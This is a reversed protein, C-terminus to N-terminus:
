ALIEELLRALEDVHPPQFMSYHNGPAVRVHLEAVLERWGAEPTLATGAPAESACVLAVRGAVEHPDYRHYARLNATFVAVRRALEGEQLQPPVIAHLQGLELVKRLAAREDLGRLDEDGLALGLDRAFQGLAFRADIEASTHFTAPVFTDLLITSRVRQGAAALRRALEIAVVGGFSWGAVDYGAPAPQELLQRAYADAMAEVTEIPLEGEAIGQSQLGICPRDQALRAVLPQYCFATGGIPHVLVLTPRSGGSRLPLLRSAPPPGGSDIERALAEVTPSRFLTTLPLSVHLRAKIAAFLQVAMLSHGGLAFFDDRAGVLAVGLLESFLRAVELESRTRPATYARDQDAGAAPLQALAKRDVKGNPTLPLRELSVIASPVMYEPLRQKLRARLEAPSAAGPGAVVYAFIRKGGVDDRVIAAVERVEGEQALVAEIEGLEIRYGRVKVQQDIRGLCEITGDPLWRGLDGTRYMRGAGFPNPIFKEATLQPRGLYGGGVCTGAICIEGPVGIPTPQMQEDCIYIQTNDVPRGIDPPRPSATASPAVTSSITIVTCETPGYHNVLAFPATMPPRRSLRDGGTHLARLKCDRPWEMDLMLEAVPTPVFTAAIANAVLWDKLAVPDSRLAEEVLCLTGGRALTSWTEWVCADFSLGAGQAWRDGPALTFTHAHWAVLNALSRHSILSGKPKGTSGSTYIVYALDDLALPGAEPPGAPLERLRSAERDLCVVHADSAIPRALETTTVLIKVGADSLMYGIREAGLDPAIPLYAAGAKWAALWAVIVEPTRPLHVGVISGREAGLERLRRALQNARADLERYSIAVGGHELAIARPTHTAVAAVLQDVRDGPFERSTENWGRVVQDREADGLLALGSIRASPATAIAGLLTLFHGVMRDITVADFLDTCYEIAGRLGGGDEELVMTLDFKATGTDPVISRQEIGPIPVPRPANQLAFMVQFLPTYSLSREPNLEDVLKEFPVDQHAYAGLAVERVRALLERFTPDGSLDTRMVLTNVFFGILQELEGRNRNAIPSGVFVDHQGSYRHLLLKFAALYLMFSTASEERCLVALRAVLEPPIEFFRLAGRLSQKPPRAHDTPLELLTPMGALQRKWYALQQDLVDGALWARQWAAFDAYQITLERLQGGAYLTNIEDMLVAMSWGDSVIHHMVLVLWHVDPAVRLMRARVLPGLALDFPERAAAIACRSAEAESEVDSVPVEIALAPAIVQVARGDREAFTTRLSDHRAVVAQIARTFAAIEFSGELRTVFPVNYFPSHPELQDLFWLRQQAFSLALEGDRPARQIAPASARRSTEIQRALGAVTPAEFIRRLPLEVGLEQRVRSIVQTALLSHGGLEFFNDDVGVQERRLVESWIRALVQEAPSRPALYTREAAERGSPAPLAKRDLKGSPLLPLTDLAVFAAPVMYEPLKTRLYGALERSDPAGARGVVYAVLHKDGSTDGRVVVVAEAIAPHALLTTEIEGLEIRFGRVKVQQDIRGLCEITGGHLWRGRDGTRYMRGPGFPNPIFKEATLQPRGLYGAGVGAGAICIEGPVGIPTPQLHEDCIYIQTNDVPRGIDPARNSGDAAPPVTCSTSIVTCETPGYHNLLAFPLNRPPRRSLRDGGTHLARLKGDRPWEMDLMLEAVPTPVFTATIGNAVLWDKLAAPDARLAEEVLSLRGGRALTSWTDWVCADFSLGAGQAWCDDPALPFARAHWAVLNALSRHSILSGKPKGTSGSTYIVYAIDDSGLPGADPPETALERLRPAERDLCVVQADTVIPRALETTTVLLKVSADSLMYAIREAGLDPAIPLYAAGAKWAALWAVILDITRELHVGIVAGRQTGLERLHRALQNARADLECYTIAVGRHELAIAHPTRAAVAAVLREVRDAPFEHSTENWGRLVQHREAASLLPLDSIRRSPGEVIAVLLTQFHGIMREITSPDFIDTNYEFSGALGDATEDLSLILDFKAIQPDIDVISQEIQPLAPLAPANQLVFMVQFLPTHSLSREPQLEEVLKEFPVDQHAYAELAIDRVRSILERFSPDGSLDTRMVLTNVFFGILRETESRNRNAVATGVAIDDQGSYRRLLVQFAALLVMFLTASEKSALAQLRTSLAAPLQINAKAGRHGLRGPRPRDTPLEILAPSGALQARWYDLQRDIEGSQLWSRHWAAFDAYQIPLPPLAPERGATFARYLEVLEDWLVALSWGDAVIHHMVLLLWHEGPALALVRARLLPGASLDFPERALEVAIRRAEAERESAALHGLDALPLEVHLEPHVIQHPKGDRTAFTTRLSEHRAVVANLSRALAALDLPGVLRMTVPENYFPSNTEYQDLFWLRQQAFSLELVGDRSVEPIADVTRAGSDSVLTALGAVTPEDFVARLPLEVGFAERLRSVLQTAMLSHGGLEFFQDHVGVRECRLLKQWIAAIQQEVPTRPAVYEITTVPDPLSKKDLKGNPLTPMADLVVIASPVMYEPLRTKLWTRLEGLDPAGQKGVVYGVLRRDRSTDGKAIVIAERVAPHQALVGTVEGLEIRFGRIKVQEDVRGLLEIAGDPLWRAVDGTRYMRAGPQKSFPDPVFRAATLDPRNAFGRALGAGGIYMEGGVGIPVPELNDDLLYIQTNDVPRGYPVSRHSGARCQWHLSAIATETPGGANHLEGGKAALYADQLAVSLAEAGSTVKRLSTAELFAPEVLLSELLSPIFTAFTVREDRVLRAISAPDQHRSVVLTGGSALAAFMEWGSVDFSPSIFQLCREEPGLRYTRAQWAIFNEIAGRPLMVGKPTGTSGSTYIVYALHDARAACRPPEPTGDAALVATADILRASAHMGRLLEFHEARSLVVGVGSDRLMFALRDSPYTPDLPLYAGGAKLVALMSAILEPGRELYLAVLTDPGIGLRQLDHALANAKRDLQSYTWSRGEFVVAVADPTRHAHRAFRVEIMRDHSRDRATANWGSLVQDREGPSLLPLVAVSRAPEAAAGALLQELNALMRVATAREFLESAYALALEITDGSAALELELEFSSGAAVIEAGEFPPETTVADRSAFAAQFIPPRGLERRGPLGEVLLQYPYEAHARAAAVDRATRALLEDFTPSSALQAVIPLYTTAYGIVGAHGREELGVAFSPQGSYRHLFAQFAALVVVDLTTGRAAALAHLRAAVGRDLRHRVHSASYTRAPPPVRDFPLDLPPVQDLGQRDWFARLEDGRASALMADQTASFSEFDAAPDSTAMSGAQIRSLEGALSALAGRDAVIAHVAVLLVSGRSGREYRRVRVLPGRELDFPEAIAAGILQPLADDSVARADVTAIEPRLDALEGRTPEGGESPFIARLIAHRQVLRDLGRALVQEGLPERIRM